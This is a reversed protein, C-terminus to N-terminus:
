FTEVNQLTASSHRSGTEDHDSYKFDLMTFLNVSTFLLNSVLLSCPEKVSNCNAVHAIDKHNMLKSDSQGYLLVLGRSDFSEITQLAKVSLDGKKLCLLISPGMLEKDSSTLVQKKSTIKKSYHLQSIITADMNALKNKLQRSESAKLNSCHFIFVQYCNLLSQYRPAIKKKVSKRM